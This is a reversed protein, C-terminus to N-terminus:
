YMVGYKPAGHKTDFARLLGKEAGLILVTAEPQKTLNM